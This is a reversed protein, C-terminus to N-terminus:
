SRGPARESRHSGDPASQEPPVPPYNDSLVSTEPHYENCSRQRRRRRRRCTAGEGLDQDSPLPLSIFSLVTGVTGQLHQEWFQWYLFLM